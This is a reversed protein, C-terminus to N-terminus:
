ATHVFFLYSLLTLAALLSALANTSIALYVVGLVSLLGGFWLAHPLRLEERLSRGGRPEVCKRTM